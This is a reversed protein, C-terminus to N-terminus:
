REAQEASGKVSLHKLNLDGMAGPVGHAAVEKTSLPSIDLNDGDAEKTLMQNTINAVDQTISNSFTGKKLFDWITEFSNSLKVAEDIGSGITPMESNIRLIPCGSNSGTGSLGESSKVHSNGIAGSAYLQASTLGTDESM